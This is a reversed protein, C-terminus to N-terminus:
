KTIWIIAGLGLAVVTTAILLTRLSFRCIPLWSASTLVTAVLAAAWHAVPNSTGVLTLDGKRISYFAVRSGFIIWESPAIAYQGTSMAFASDFYMHGGFSVVSRGGLFVFDYRWYSRVWLLVLLVAVVGWVVSWAIRVKRYRM